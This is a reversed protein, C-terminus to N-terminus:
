DRYATGSCGLGQGGLVRSRFGLGLFIEEGPNRGSFGRISALRLTLNLKGVGGEVLYFLPGVGM